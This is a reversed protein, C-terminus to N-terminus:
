RRHVVSDLMLAAMPTFGTGAALLAVDSLPPDAGENPGWSLVSVHDGEALTVEVVCSESDLPYLM